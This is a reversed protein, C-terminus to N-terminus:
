HNPLIREEEQNHLLDVLVLAQFRQLVADSFGDSDLIEKIEKVLMRLLDHDRTLEIISDKLEPSEEVLDKYLGEEESDAHQLTRTEWHEVAVYATELAKEEQGNKLLFELIENLEEAENLAAEHIASHSDIHKLGPGSM